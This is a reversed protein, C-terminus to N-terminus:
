YSQLRALLWNIALAAQYQIKELREMPFTLSVASDFLNTIPVPTYQSLYEIVDVGKRAIVIKEKLHNTFTLKSNLTLGLHKHNDVRIVQVGNFM